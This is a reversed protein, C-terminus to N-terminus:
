FMLAAGFRWEKIPGTGLAHGRIGLFVNSTHRLQGAKLSARNPKVLVPGVSNADTLM